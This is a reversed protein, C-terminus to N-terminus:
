GRRVVIEGRVALAIAMALVLDDHTGSQAETRGNERRVFGRCEKLLRVSSFIQPRELLAAAVGGLMKVRSISTTLWGPAGDQQYLNGYRCVTELYAIVGAGHNNREVALVAGNYERALDTACQALELHGLRCQLEACQLGTELDVVQAASYDGDQGGGAPDVSVVYRRDKVAPYWVKLAGGMRQEMAVPAATCRAEIAPVDFVCAGSALFCAVADEAFEQRALGRFGAHVKRRFGIQEASLGYRAILQQEEGTLGDAPRDRYSEEWWWPFFHQVMGTMAAGEWEQWFCGAAGKPTSELVLEGGPPMAARLGQLTEAPNGPWFAVESCHLNQITRGRGASEEGASVVRYESDLSPFVIRRASAKSTRLAGERLSEPLERRFRHVIQFLAEAAEHTQAVQVTLTGPRTITKLFFRAAIWTSVGLQRAKLVINGPGRRGEYERQVRNAILPAPRGSRDRIRLLAEALFFVPTSGGLLAAPEDLVRGLAVLEELDEKASETHM